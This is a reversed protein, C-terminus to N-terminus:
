VLSVLTTWLYHVGSWMCLSLSETYQAEKGSVEWLRSRPSLWRECGAQVGRSCASEPALCYM